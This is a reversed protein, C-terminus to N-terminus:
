PARCACHRLPGQWICGVLINGTSACDDECPQNRVVWTGNECALLDGTQEETPVMGM